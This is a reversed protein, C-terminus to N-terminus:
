VHDEAMTKKAPPKAIFSQVLNQGGLFGGMDSILAPGLLQPQGMYSAWDASAALGDIVASVTQAAPARDESFSAVLLKESSLNTVWSVLESFPTFRVTLAVDFASAVRKLTGIEYNEYNPDELASIRSQSMGAKQALQKQTWGEKERLMSIQSAVTNSVHASVYADRYDKTAM